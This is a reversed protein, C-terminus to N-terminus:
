FQEFSPTDFKQMRTFPWGRFWARGVISSKNIAGFRRSDYSNGRNDGLVFFEENGLEVVKDGTTQLDSPLYSEEIAKGEPFSSNYIIIEGNSVKVREGPLGIIRKLFYEDTNGPSKFVIVEGREPSRLRYTLEDIILYEHDYFNPEMSAGKVYFPKFLFYRIVGITIAALLVVKVLELFFILATTLISKPPPFNNITNQEDSM